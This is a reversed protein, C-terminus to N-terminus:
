FALEVSLTQGALVTVPRDLTLDIRTGTATYRCPVPRGDLRVSVATAPAPTTLALTALRLRGHRLEVSCEQRGDRGGRGDGGDRRRQQRYSGWGEATTFGARFDDPGIAPAFGLHGRPGHHEYGAAALYVAHSMMARSYHDSCEIENYPNRRDAGYRRHVAHVVALAQDTLGAGLMGAAAQYELGTWVENFYAVAYTDGGGAPDAGEGFPWTCVLLGPEDTSAFLRGIDGIPSGDRYGVPPWAATWM